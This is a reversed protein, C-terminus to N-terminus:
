GIFAWFILLQAGYYLVWLARAFRSQWPSDPSLRFLQIALLTDSAMFAMAGILALVLGGPLAFASLGMGTILVVYLRVPGRMDGTHPTLWVETSIAYALLLLALVIPPATGALTLFLVIYALHALAFSGLGLRFARHGDRSLALDGLASLALALVLAIPAGSQAALIALSAIPVTKVVSRLLSPPRHCFWGGYILAVLAGVTVSPAIM